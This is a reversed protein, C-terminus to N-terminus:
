KRSTLLQRKVGRALRILSSGLSMSRERCAEEYGHQRGVLYGQDFRVQPDVLKPTHRLAKGFHNAFHSLAETRREKHRSFDSIAKEYVAITQEACVKPSCFRAVREPANQSLKKRLDDDSALRLVGEALSAADHPDVIWGSEGHICYEPLGGVRAGLCCGGYSMAEICSYCATEYRSPFLCIDSDIVLKKIADREMFGLFEVRDSIGLVNLRERMEVAYAYNTGREATEQGGILLKAKPFNELIMPMSEVLYDAGKLREVRGWFFLKPFESSKSSRKVTTEPMKMTLPTRIIEFHERSRVGREDWWRAINDCIAIAGDAGAVCATEMAAILETEADGYDGLVGLELLRTLPGYTRVVVPATRQSLFHYSLGDFDQSEIVDPKFAEVVDRSAHYIDWSRAFNMASVALHSLGVFTGYPKADYVRKWVRIGDIDVEYSPTEQASNDFSLVLVEHGLAKLGRALEFSAPFVPDEDLRSPFSASILVIRM